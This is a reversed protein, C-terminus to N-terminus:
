PAGDATSGGSDAPLANRRCRTSRCIAWWCHPFDSGHQVFESLEAVGSNQSVLFEVLLYSANESTRPPFVLRLVALWTSPNPSPGAPASPATPPPGTTAPPKSRPAM